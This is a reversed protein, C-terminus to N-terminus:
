KIKLLRFQKPVYGEVKQLDIGQILEVINNTPNNLSNLKIIDSNTFVHQPRKYESVISEDRTETCVSKEDKIDDQPQVTLSDTDIHLKEFCKQLNLDKYNERKCKLFFYDGNQLYSDTHPYILTREKRPTTQEQKLQKKNVNKKESYTTSLIGKTCNMSLFLNLMSRKIQFENIDM